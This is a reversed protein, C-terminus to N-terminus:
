VRWRWSLGRLFSRVWPRGRGCNRREESIRHLAQLARGLGDLELGQRM